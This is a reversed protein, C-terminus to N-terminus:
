SAPIKCRLGSCEVETMSEAAVTPRENTVCSGHSKKSRVDDIIDHDPSRLEEVTTIRIRIAESRDDTDHYVIRSSPIM